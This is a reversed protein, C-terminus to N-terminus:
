VKVNKGEGSFFVESNTAKDCIFYDYYPKGVRVDHFKVGWNTLQKRTMELWDIQTVTGRATWFIITNGAEYLENIKNIRQENPKSRLYQGNNTSCITDDIDIYYIKGKTLEM